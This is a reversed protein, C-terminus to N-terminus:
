LGLAKNRNLYLVLDILPFRKEVMGLTQNCRTCLLGRVKGSRHDHDVALRIGNPPNHCLACVGNQRHLMAEYQEPTIGFKRALKRKRHAETVKEKNRMGWARANELRKRRIEESAHYSARMSDRRKRKVEEWWSPDAARRRERWAQTRENRKQQSQRAPAEM